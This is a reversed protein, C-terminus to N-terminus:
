GRSIVGEEVLQALIRATDIRSMGSVSFLDDFSVTGDIQALVFGARHDLNLWIIEDDKLLVRPVAELKGLKSEFMTLLTKESREKMAIVEPDEPALAIAKQILEMAGTHDDLGLLDRAGRLIADVEEKKTPAQLKPKSDSSILDLARDRGVVAELKIGPNSRADWASEAAPSLSPSPRPVPPEEVAPQQSASWGWAYGMPETFTRQPETLPPPYAQGPLPLESLEPVAPKKPEEPATFLPPTSPPPVEPGPDGGIRVVMPSSDTSAPGSFLPPMVRAGSSESSANWQVMTTRPTPEVPPPPQTAPAELGISLPAMPSADGPVMTSWDSMTQRVGRPADAPAVPAAPPAGWQQMTDGADTPPPAVPFPSDPFPADVSAPGAGWDNLTPRPARVPEAAEVSLPVPPAQPVPSPTGPVQTSWDSMTPKSPRSGPVATPPLPEVTVALPIPAPQPVPSPLGPVQTSWDSMTPKSPRSGPVASPPMPETTVALPIPAPQPVPSPLGPVQTSWDSMTPRPRRGSPSVTPPLPEPSVTLPVPAVQPVPSPSVAPPSWQVMTQKSTRAQPASGFPTLEVAAAGPPLPSPEPAPVPSPSDGLRVSMPLPTHGWGPLTQKVPQDSPGSPSVPAHQPIPTSAGTLRGWDGELSPEPPPRPANQTALNWAVQNSVPPSAAPPEFPNDRPPAMPEPPAAVPAVPPAVPSPLPEPSSPPPMPVDGGAVLQRAKENEPDLKLAREFLKRAGELDGSLKLWIGADVLQAAREKSM